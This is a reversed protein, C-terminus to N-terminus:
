VHARGIKRREKTSNTADYIGIQGGAETWAILDDLALMAVRKREALAAENHPDFFEHSKQSGVLQRRYMGVNFVETEHGLWRLYRALKRAIYSKGRAPLGVMVLAFKPTNPVIAPM